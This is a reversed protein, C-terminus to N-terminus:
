KDMHVNIHPYTMEIGQEDFIDKVRQNVLFYVDWYDPTKVWLRLTYKIASDGYELVGAFPAPELLANDVTAALVLADRVKQAPSSYAASVNIDIRRIDNSSYNTIQAVSVASNPISITKNDPTILKTYNMSIEQVTGSHGGIEVFDGSRFPHTTLLTLGGFVNSLLSQISLSVALTLVSALAVVGKTDIGLSSAVTMFLLLYLLVKIVSTIMSHAAKELKSRDLLKRVFRDILHIVIIGVVLTTLASILNNMATIGLARAWETLTASFVPVSDM